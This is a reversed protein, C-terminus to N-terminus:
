PPAPMSSLIQRILRCLGLKDSSHTAGASLMRQNFGGESSCAVIPGRFRANVILKEGSCSRGPEPYPSEGAARPFCGDVAILAVDPNAEFLDLAELLTVATLIELDLDKLMDRYAELLLMEDEVILIKRPM